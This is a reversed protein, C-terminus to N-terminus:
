ALHNQYIFKRLKLLGDPYGYEDQIAELTAHIFLKKPILACAAVVNAEFDAKRRTSPTFAFSNPSHLVHHAFEHYAVWLRMGGSLESDLVIFPVARYVLYIGLCGTHAECIHVDHTTCLQALDSESYVRKDLDPMIARKIHALFLM